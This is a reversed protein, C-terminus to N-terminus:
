WFRQPFISTENMKEKSKEVSKYARGFSRLALRHHRRVCPAGNPRTLAGGKDRRCMGATQAGPPTAPPCKSARWQRGAGRHWFGPSAKTTAVPAVEDVVTAALCSSRPRGRGQHSHSRPGPLCWTRKQTPCHKARGITFAGEGFFFWPIDYKCRRMSTRACRCLSFVLARGRRV